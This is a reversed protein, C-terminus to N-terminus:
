LIDIKSRDIGLGRADEANLLMADLTRDFMENMSPPGCVYIKQIGTQGNWIEIQRRLYDADWREPNEQSIRLVLEFNNLNKEKSIQHLGQLLDLAYANKKSDFTAYLVLKFRPSFKPSSLLGLNQRLLLCLLDAFVLVGTGGVFAIHTGVTQENIELGKGLLGKVQVQLNEQNHLIQSFGTQYNKCCFVMMSPDAQKEPLVSEDFNLNM